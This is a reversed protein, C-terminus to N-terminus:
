DEFVVTYIDWPALPPLYAELENAKGCFINTGLAMDGGFARILRARKGAPSRAKLTLAPSEGISCNLVSVSVLDGKADVRPICATQSNTAVYAPLRGGTIYDAAALLQARRATNIVPSWLAYGFVAVRGGLPTVAAVTSSGCVVAEGSLEADYRLYESLVRYDSANQNTFKFHPQASFSFPQWKQGVYGGNIEDGTTMECAPTLELPECDLGILHALGRGKLKQVASGCTLVGGSFVERLEAEDMGDIAAPYLIYGPFHPGHALPLGTLALGYAGGLGPSTWDFPFGGSNKYHTPSFPVGLGGPLTHESLAALRLLYPRWAAIKSLLPEHAAPPENDVMLTAYSLANCGYSLYLASEVATGHPSKGLTSHPLNEVEPRINKVYDPLHAMGCSLSLAKSVMDRPNHDTYFGGGPRSCPPKGFIEYLVDYVSKLSAGAYVNWDPCAHQLGGVTDPSSQRVGEAIARTVTALSERNFEVLRERWVAGDPSPDNIHGLLAERSFDAQWQTRMKDLCGPCFCGYAVPHHNNMRLDDDIFLIDPKCRAYLRNSERQYDLFDPDRPCNGYPFVTGDIGEMHTWVIGRFDMHRLYDGHGLTNSVQLSVGINHSRFREAASLMADASKKHIYMPPFGYETSLWVEDLSDPQRILVELLEDLLKENYHHSMLRLSIFPNM